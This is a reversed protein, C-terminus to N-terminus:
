KKSQETVQVCWIGKPKMVLLPYKVNLVEQAPDPHKKVVDKMSRKNFFPDLKM